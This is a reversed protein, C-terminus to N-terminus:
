AALEEGLALAKVLGIPPAGQSLIRDHFQRLTGKPSREFFARRAELIRLKGLTYMYYSPNFTGRRAEREAPFPEMHAERVFIQTAEELTSGQAHMAISALLRCDRLLADQLQAIEQRPDREGFGQEIVLQEAYHGWGESFTGSPFAKQTPSMETKRVHQFQLYHGPYVEHATINRLLPRNLSRLWQRQKEADASPDPLTIRYAAEAAGEEFPGPSRMSAFAFARDAPPSEEVRCTMDDPLSALDRQVVFERLERVFKRAEDLVSDVSPTDEALAGVASEVSGDANVARALEALRAQNRRLDDQGEELLVRWPMTLGDNFWLLKQFREPGLQWSEDSRPLEKELHHRFDELASLIQDKSSSADARLDPAHDAVFAVGEEFHQPLGKLIDLGLTVSPRPLPGRLRSLGTRLFDPTLGLQRVVVEARHRAPAYERSVFETLQVPFLYDFTSLDPSPFDVLYFIGGQLRLRLTQADIQRQRPLSKSDIAGLMELLQRAEAVWAGTGERDVLPLYGDYAHLGRFIAWWTELRFIHHLVERELRAFAREVPSAGAPVPHLPVVELPVAPGAM